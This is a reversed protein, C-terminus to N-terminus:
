LVRHKKMDVRGDPTFTVGERELWERQVNEGGFCFAPALSGDAFVVRHCPVAIPTDNAHLHWGVTRAGHPFGAARAIGGYTAVSGPPVARVIDYVAEKTLRAASM